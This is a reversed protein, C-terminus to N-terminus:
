SKFFVVRAIRADHDSNMGKRDVDVLRVRTGGKAEICGLKDIGGNVFWRQRPSFRAVDKRNFDGGFVVTIGAEQFQLVINQMKDWHQNWMKKRWKKHLKPKRNWAGSVFHTNIFVVPPLDPRSKRRLVVWTVYRPPSTRKRGDHMRVAGRPALGNSMEHGQVEVWFRPKYAIPVAVNDHVISWKNGLGRRLDQHDEREAIEQFLAVAGWRGVAAADGAVKTRSLDPNNRINATIVRM